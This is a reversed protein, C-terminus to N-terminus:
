FSRKNPRRRAFFRGLQRQFAPPIVPAYFFDDPYRESLALLDAFDPKGRADVLAFIERFVEAIQWAPRFEAIFHAGDGIVTFTHPRGPQIAVEEGAEVLRSARFGDRVRLVGERVLFREEQRLHRHLPGGNGRRGVHVESRLLDRSTELVVAHLDFVPSELVDGVQAAREPQRASTSV